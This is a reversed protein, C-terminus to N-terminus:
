KKLKKFYESLNVEGKTFLEVHVFGGIELARLQAKLGLKGAKYRVKYSQLTNYLTKNHQYDSRHLNDFFDKLAEEKTFVKKAAM